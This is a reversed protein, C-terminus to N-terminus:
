YEYVSREHLRSGQSDERGEIRCRLSTRLRNMESGNRLSRFDEACLFHEMKHLNLDVIDKQLGLTHEDAAKRCCEGRSLTNGMLESRCGSFFQGSKRDIHHIIDTMVLGSHYRSPCLSHSAVEIHGISAIADECLKDLCRLEKRQMKGTLAYLDRLDISVSVKAFFVPIFDNRIQRCLSMLAPFRSPFVKQIGNLYESKWGVPIYNDFRQCYLKDRLYYRPVQPLDVGRLDRSGQAIRSLHEFIQLILEAPLRCLGCQRNSEERKARKLERKAPRTAGEPEPEALEKDRKQKWRKLMMRPSLQSRAEGSPHLSHVVAFCSGFNLRLRNCINTQTNLLTPKFSFSCILSCTTTFGEVARVGAAASAPYAKTVPAVSCLRM